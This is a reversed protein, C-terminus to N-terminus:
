RRWGPAPGGRASRRVPTSRGTGTSCTRWRMRSTTPLGSPSSATCAAAAIRRTALSLIAPASRRTESDRPRSRAIEGEESEAPRSRQMRRAPACARWGLTSIGARGPMVLAEAADDGVQPAIEHAGHVQGQVLQRRGQDGLDQVLVGRAAPGGHLLLGGVDDLDLLDEGGAQLELTLAVLERDPEGIGPNRRSAAGPRRHPWQCRKRTRTGSARATSTLRFRRRPARLADIQARQCTLTIGRVPQSRM